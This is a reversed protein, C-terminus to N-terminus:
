EGNAPEAQGPAPPGAQCQSWLAEAGLTLAGVRGGAVVVERQYPGKCATSPIALQLQLPHM